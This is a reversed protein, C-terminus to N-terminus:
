RDNGGAFAGLILSSYVTQGHTPCQPEPGNTSCVSRPKGLM